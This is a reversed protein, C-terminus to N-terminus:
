FHLNFGLLPGTMYADFRFLDSGSGDEYDMDLHRYGMILSARDHFRWGFMLTAQWAFDSGVSFGGIDARLHGWWSESIEGGFRVGLFPDVWDQKGEVEPQAPLEIGQDLSVYRAGFLFDTYRGSDGWRYTGFGEILWIKTKTRLTGNPTDERTGLEFYNPEFGFGWTSTRAEVHSTFIFDLNDVIDGFSLDVPADKGRVTLTGDLGVIWAYYPAFDVDWDGAAQAPACVLGPALLVALVTM